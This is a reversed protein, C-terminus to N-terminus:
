NRPASVPRYSPGAELCFKFIYMQIIRCLQTVTSTTTTGRFAEVDGGPVPAQPRKRARAASERPARLEERAAARSGRGWGRGGPEPRRRGREAGAERPTLSPHAPPGCPPRPARRVRLRRSRGGGPWAPPPRPPAPRASGGPGEGGGGEGFNGVGRPGSPRIIRRIRRPLGPRAAPEPASRLPRCAPASLPAPVPLPAAISAAATARPGGCRGRWHPSGSCPALPAARSHRAAAVASGGPPSPSLGPDPRPSRPSWAGLSAPRLM